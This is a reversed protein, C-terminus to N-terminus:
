RFKAIRRVERRDRERSVANFIYVANIIYINIICFYLPYRTTLSCKAMGIARIFNRYFKRYHKNVSIDM